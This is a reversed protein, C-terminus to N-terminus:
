FMLRCGSRASPSATNALKAVYKNLLAQVSDASLRGGHMNPFLATAGGKRPENLWGGLPKSHM